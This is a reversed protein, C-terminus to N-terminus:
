RVLAVWSKVCQSEGEAKITVLAEDKQGWKCQFLTFISKPVCIQTILNCPSLLCFTLTFLSRNVSSFMNNSM